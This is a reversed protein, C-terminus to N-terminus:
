PLMAARGAKGLGRPSKQGPRGRRGELERILEGLDWYPPGELASGGDM